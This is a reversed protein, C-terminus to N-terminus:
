IQLTVGFFTYFGMTASPVAVPHTHVYEPRSFALVINRRRGLMPARKPSLEM